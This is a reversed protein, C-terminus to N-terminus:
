IWRLKFDKLAFIIIALFIIFNFILSINIYFIINPSNLQFVLMIIIILLIIFFFIISAKKFIKNMIIISLSYVISILSLKILLFSYNSYKEAFLLNVIEKSYNYYIVSTLLGFFVKIVLLSRFFNYINQEDNKEKNMYPIIIPILAAFFYYNIKSLSSLANFQGSINPEFIYRSLFIDSYILIASCLTLLISKHNNKSILFLKNNIKKKIKSSYFIKYNSIIIFCILSLITSIFAELSSQHFQVLIILFLCRLLQQFFTIKAQFKYHHLGNLFGLQLYTITILFIIIFFFSFIYINNFKFYTYFYDKFFICFCFILFFVLLFNLIIRKYDSYFSYEHKKSIENSIYPVLYSFIYAVAIAGSTLSTVLSFDQVTLYRSILILFLFSLFNALNGYSLISFINNIKM